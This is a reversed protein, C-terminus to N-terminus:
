GVFPVTRRRLMRCSKDTASAFRGKLSECVPAWGGWLIEDGDAIVEGEDLYRWGPSQLRVRRRFVYLTGDAKNDGVKSKGCHRVASWRKEHYFSIEDGERFYEGVALSRWEPDALVPLKRRYERCERFHTGEYEGRDEWIIGNLIQDGPEPKDVAKDILRYGEGPDPCSSPSSKMVSVDSPSVRVCLPKGGVLVNDLKVFGFWGNWFNLDVSGTCGSWVGAVVTVRDGIRIPESSQPTVRRRYIDPKCYTTGDLLHDRDVWRKEEDDWVQDGSQPTDKVKDILRWGEGPDPVSGSPKAPEFVKRRVPCLFSLPMGVHWHPLFAWGGNGDYIEDCSCMLEGQEILRWM